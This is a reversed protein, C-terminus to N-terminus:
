QTIQLTDSFTNRKEIIQRKSECVNIFADFVWAVLVCTTVVRCAAEDTNAFRSKLCASRQTM